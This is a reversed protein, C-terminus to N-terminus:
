GAKTKDNEKRKIMVKSVCYDNFLIAAMAPNAAAKTLLSVMQKEYEKVLKRIRFYLLM